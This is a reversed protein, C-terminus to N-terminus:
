KNNQLTEQKVIALESDSDDPESEPADHFTEHANHSKIKFKEASESEITATPDCLRALLYAKREFTVIFAGAHGPHVQNHHWEGAM